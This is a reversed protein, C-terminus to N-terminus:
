LFIKGLYRLLSPKAAIAHLALGKMDDRDKRSFVHKISDADRVLQVTESADMKDLMRRIRM